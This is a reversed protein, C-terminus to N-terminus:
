SKAEDHLKIGRKRLETELENKLPNYHLKAQRTCPSYQAAMLDKICGSFLNRLRLAEDDALQTMANKKFKSPRFKELPEFQRKEDSPCYDTKSILHGALKNNHCKKHFWQWLYVTFPHGGGASKFIGSFEYVKKQWVYVPKECESCIDIQPWANFARKTKNRKTRYACFLLLYLAPFILLWKGSGPLPYNIETLIHAFLNFLFGVILGTIFGLLAEISEKGELESSGCFGYPVKKVMKKSGNKRWGFIETLIISTSLAVLM